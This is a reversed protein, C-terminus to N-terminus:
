KKLIRGEKWELGPCELRFANIQGNNWWKRGRKRKNAEIIKQKMEESITKGKHAESIKRKTEETHKMGMSSISMKRRTEQSHTRPKKIKECKKEKEKKIMGSVWESGPCEKQFSNQYGNNWWKRGKSIESIKKKTEDTHKIGKSSESMKQLTEPNFTRGKQVLSMKEKTKESVKKGKNSIKIKELGEKTHKYGSSGEGGDTMNRLIGTGNDKRGFVAIMYIEHKFAQNETLNNKLILIRNKNPPFYARRRKDFARRRKGKGIYYPTGDERLYAYTYYENM